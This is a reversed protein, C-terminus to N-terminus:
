VVVNVTTRRLEAGGGRRERRADLVVALNERAEVGCAGGGNRHQIKRRNVVGTDEEAELAGGEVVGLYESAEVAEIECEGELVQKALRIIARVTERFFSFFFSPISAIARKINGNNKKPSSTSHM